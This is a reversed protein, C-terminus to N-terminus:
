EPAAVKALSGGFKGVATRAASVIVIDTM